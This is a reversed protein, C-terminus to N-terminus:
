RGSRQENTPNDRLLPTLGIPSLGIAGCNRCRATSEAGYSVMSHVGCYPCACRQSSPKEVRRCLRPPRLPLGSTSMTEPVNTRFSVQLVPRSRDPSQVCPRLRSIGPELNLPRRTIGLPRGENCEIYPKRTSLLGPQAMLVPLADRRTLPHGGPPRFISNCAPSRPHHM